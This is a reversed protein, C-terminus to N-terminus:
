LATTPGQLKSQEQEVLHSDSSQSSFSSPLSDFPIPDIAATIFQTESSKGRTVNQRAGPKTARCISPDVPHRQSGSAPDQLSQEIHGAVKKPRGRVRKGFDIDPATVPEGSSLGVRAKPPQISSKGQITALKARTAAEKTKKTPKTRNGLRATPQLTQAQHGQTRRAAIRSSRRRAPAASANEKPQPIKHSVTGYQLLLLLPSEVVYHLKLSKCGYLDRECCISEARKRAFARCCNKSEQEKSVHARYRM